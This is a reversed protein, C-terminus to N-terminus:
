LREEDQKKKKKYYVFVVCLKRRFLERRSNSNYALDRPHKVFKFIESDIEFNISIYINFIYKFILTYKETFLQSIITSDEQIKLLFLFGNFTFTNFLFTSPVSQTPFNVRANKQFRPELLGIMSFRANISECVPRQNSDSVPLSTSSRTQLSKRLDGRLIESRREKKSSSSSSSSREQTSLRKSFGLLLNIRIHSIIKRSSAGKSSFFKQNFSFCRVYNVQFFPDDIKPFRFVKSM